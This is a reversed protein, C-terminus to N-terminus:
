QLARCFGGDVPISTGNIYAAQRSALFAVTAGLEDPTGLRGAPVERAFDEVGVGLKEALDILRQTRTYGPQVTNVTVGSHAVEIALTKLLATLGSRSGNSIGLGKLPNRVAMSTIAIVRGYGRDIMGPVVRRLLHMAGLMHQAIAAELAAPDLELLPGPPPGGGNWVVIDPGRGFERITEDAFADIDTTSTLDAVVGLAGTGNIEAIAEGTEAIADVQRACLAVHAGERALAIATARGLGRSGACVMAIKGTLGLDM